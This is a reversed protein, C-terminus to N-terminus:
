LATYYTLRTRTLQNSPSYQQTTGSLQKVILNMIYYQEKLNEIFCNHQLLTIIQTVQKLTLTFM